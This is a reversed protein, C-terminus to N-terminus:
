QWNMNVQFHFFSCRLVLHVYSILFYFTSSTSGTEKYYCNECDNLKSYKMIFVTYKSWIIICLHKDDNVCIQFICKWISVYINIIM